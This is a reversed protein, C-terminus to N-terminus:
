GADRRSVLPPRPPERLRMDITLYGSMGLFRAGAVCTPGSYICLPSIQATGYAGRVRCLRVMSVPMASPLAMTPTYFVVLRPQGVLVVEM